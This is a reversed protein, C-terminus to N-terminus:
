QFVHVDKEILSLGWGTLLIPNLTGRPLPDGALSTFSRPPPLLLLTTAGGLDEQHSFSYTIFLHTAHLRKQCKECQMDASLVIEQVVPLSLSEMSALTTRTLPFSKSIKLGVKELEKYCAVCDRWGDSEKHFAKCFTGNEYLSGCNQCLLALGGSQLQWGNIFTTTKSKSHFCFLINDNGKYSSSGVGAM